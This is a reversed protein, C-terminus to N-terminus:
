VYMEFASRKRAKYKKGEARLVRMELFAVALGDGIYVGEICFSGIRTFNRIHSLGVLWVGIGRNLCHVYRESTNLDMKHIDSSSILDLEMMAAQWHQLETRVIRFLLKDCDRIQKPYYKRM